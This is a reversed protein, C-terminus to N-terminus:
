EMVENSQELWVGPLRGKGMVLWARTGSIHMLLLWPNKKANERAQSVFAPINILKTNKIEVSVVRGDPDQCVLDDTSLGATTDALIMWDRGTLLNKAALEGRKGKDRSQKGM